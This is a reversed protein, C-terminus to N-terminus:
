RIQLAALAGEYVAAMITRPQRCDGVTYFQGVNGQLAESLETAPRVGIALVVREAEILHRKGSQKDIVMIGKEVVEGIERETLMTVNKEKLADMLGKRNFAEMDLAIDALMEVITVDNGGEALFEATEAGVVGGGVMVVKENEIKEKGELVDLATSVKESKIGPIDPIIPRCGTAIIIADPRVKEVLQPTVERGLELKVKLKKFQTAEYDRLWLLKDKGPPTAALLLQGGIEKKKDYLTVEHGRLGAVRAAEMGAPGAGVVAVKRRVAAPKIEAFQQERGVAVNVACRTVAARGTGVGLCEMCSTCKRIDDVRGELAKNPWEPDAFLPRGLAVFDAKDEAIVKECYEPTKFGGAAFTPIKVRKKIAEWMYSKWGEPLRQIDFSKHLNESIGSSIHIFAAGADELMKAMAPSEETTIGGDLFEDGNIRIGVPYDLGVREKVRKTIEIPFRMRNDLSGGFEDTRKNLYPSMFSGILYGHAAHLEVMDYGARQANFAVMGFLEILHYIESRELARPVPYTREGLFVTALPSSSVLSSSAPAVARQKGPHGIQVSVAAGYNHLAEVLEAHGSILQPKDLAGLSAYGAPYDLVIYSVTILGAGGKAREVYHDMLKATVEGNVGWFSTGLPSMVIRNKIKVKGIKGPEFLKPYYRNIIM